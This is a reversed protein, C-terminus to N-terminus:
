QACRPAVEIPFGKPDVLHLFSSKLDNLVFRAIYCWAVLCPNQAEM